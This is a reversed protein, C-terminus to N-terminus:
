QLYEKPLRPGQIYDLFINKYESDVLNMTAFNDICKQRLAEIETEAKSLYAKSRLEKRMTNKDLPIERILKNHYEAMWILPYTFKKETEEFTPRNSPTTDYFGAYDFVDGTDNMIQSILSINKEFETWYRLLNFKKQLIAALQVAFIGVALKKEATKWWHNMLEKQELQNWAIGEDMQQGVNLDVIAQGFYLLIKQLIDSQLAAFLKLTDGIMNNGVLISYSLSHSKVITDRNRRIDHGDFVDDHTLSYNHFLEIGAAASFIQETLESTPNIAKFALVTLVSPYLRTGDASGPSCYNAQLTTLLSHPNERKIKLLVPYINETYVKHSFEAYNM